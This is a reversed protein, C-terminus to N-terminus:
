AVTRAESLLALHDIAMDVAAAMPAVDRSTQALLYGGQVAAVFSTALRDGDADVPLHGDEQLRRIVGRFLDSWAAFLADLKERALDDHDAVQNSLSGVACGYRGSSVANRAILADRWERLDAFTRAHELRERHRTLTEDGRQDIVARVLTSKDAFHRYLQSKSVAASRAVDDLTTHGVGRRRILDAAVAVIRIRTKM